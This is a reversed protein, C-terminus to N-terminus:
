RQARRDSPRDKWAPPLHGPKHRAAWTANRPNIAQGALPVGGRQLIYEAWDAQKAPVSLIGYRSTVRRGFVAVGRDRLMKEVDKGLFVSRDFTLQRAGGHKIGKLWGSVRAIWNLADLLDLVNM